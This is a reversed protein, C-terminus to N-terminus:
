EDRVSNFEEVVVERKWGDRVFISEKTSELEERAGEFLGGCINGVFLGVGDTSEAVEELVPFVRGLGLGGRGRRSGRWRWPHGLLWRWPHSRALRWPHIWNCGGGPRRKSWGVGGGDEGPRWYRERRKVDGCGFPALRWPHRRRKCQGVGGDSVVCPGM